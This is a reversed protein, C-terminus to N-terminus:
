RFAVCGGFCEKRIFYGCQKCKEPVKNNLVEINSNYDDMLSEFSWNYNEINKPLFAKTCPQVTKGDPNVLVMKGIRCRFSINIRAKLYELQDKSFICPPLPNSTMSPVGIAEFFKYAQFFSDGIKKSPNYPVAPVIDISAKLKKGIEGIKGCDALSFNEFINYRLTINVWNKMYYDASSLFLQSTNKDLFHSVNLVVSGPTNKIIALGNSLVNVELRKLKCYTIAKNIHKWIAPEGGIINIKKGGFEVFKNVVDLFTFFDMDSQFKDKFKKTYCYDCSANCKYTPALFFIFNNKM